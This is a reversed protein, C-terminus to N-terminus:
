DKGIIPQMTVPGTFLKDVQPERAVDDVKIVKM